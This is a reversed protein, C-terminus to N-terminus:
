PHEHKYTSPHTNIYLEKIDLYLVRERVKACNKGLTFIMVGRELAHM